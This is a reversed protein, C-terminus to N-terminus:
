IKLGRFFPIPQKADDKNIFHCCEITVEGDLDMGTLLCMNMIIINEDSSEVANGDEDTYEELGSPM